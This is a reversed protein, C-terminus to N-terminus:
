DDINKTVKFGFENIIRTVRRCQLFELLDQAGMFNESASLIVAGHYLPRYYSQPVIWYVTGLNDLKSLYQSFLIFGADVKRQSIEHYSDILTRTMKINPVLKEWMGIAQLIQRAAQGYPSTQPDALVLTEVDHLSGEDLRNFKSSTTWLILRGMAYIFFSSPVALGEEILKNPYSIDASLFIDIDEGQKIKEYLVVSTESIIKVTHGTEAEFLPKIQQFVELFSRTVAVNVEEACSDSMLGSLLVVLSWFLLFFKKVTNM